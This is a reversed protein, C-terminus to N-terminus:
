HSKRDNQLLFTANNTLTLHNEIPSFRVKNCIFFLSVSLNEQSLAWIFTYKVKGSIDIGIEDLVQTVIADQEEEDGSETLIDDLTDNVSVYFFHYYASTILYCGM